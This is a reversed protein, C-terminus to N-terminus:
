SELTQVRMDTGNTSSTITLHARRIHRKITIEAIGMHDTIEAYTYGCRHALYIARTRPSVADLRATLQDLRQQGDLIQDLAPGPAILPSQREVDDISVECRLRQGDRRHQDVMLNHVARLLFAHENQVSRENAYVHLRLMAEQILDEADERSKGRRRVFNLLRTSHMPRSSDPEAVHFSGIRLSGCGFRPVRRYVELGWRGISAGLGSM